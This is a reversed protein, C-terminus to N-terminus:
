DALEHEFASGALVDSVEDFNEILDKIAIDTTKGFNIKPQHNEVGLFEIAKDLAVTPDSKIHDEYTLFLADEADFLRQTAESFEQYTSLADLLTTFRHGIYIRDPNIRIQKVRVKAGSSVHFQEKQTAVVHSVLKRLHSRQLSIFRTFGTRKLREVFQELDSSVMVPHYDQLETGFVRNGALKDLRDEIEAVAADFSLSGYLKDIGQGAEDSLRHFMKELTEGDWFINPNQDLMDGLLTSGSRGNHVMLVHGEDRPSQVLGRLRSSLARPGRERLNRLTRLSM